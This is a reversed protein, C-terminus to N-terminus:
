VLGMKYFLRYMEREKREYNELLTLIECAFEISASGNATVINRDSVAQANVYGAANTYAEGGRM